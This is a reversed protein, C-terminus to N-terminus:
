TFQDSPPKYPRGHRRSGALVQKLEVVPWALRGNIRIPRLPGSEFCAWTRLTQPARGLHYAACATSVHTRTESELPPFPARDVSPRIGLLPVPERSMAATAAMHEREVRQQTEALSAVEDQVEDLEQQLRRIRAQLMAITISTM